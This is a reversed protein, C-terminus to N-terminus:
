TPPGSRFAPSRHVAAVAGGDVLIDTGTIFSAAPSALFEVVAAIDDPTGIRGTGSREIMLRMFEGSPGTLEDRGMPTSIVGPSLSVLRGGKTGWALSLAQVRLQNARKAIAYAIGPDLTKPDLVPLAAIEATPTTALLDEVEPALTMMTGAMSAVCVGVTGPQVAAAFADLLHATGLVDVAVIREASAQVPSVGATHALCRIWGRELASDVLAAVSAADSIDSPVARAAFGEATLADVAAQLQKSDNDALVVERGAALRRAIALGM